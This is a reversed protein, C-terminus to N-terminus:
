AARIDRVKEALEQPMAIIPGVLRQPYDPYVQCLDCDPERLTCARESKKRWWELVLLRALRCSHLM